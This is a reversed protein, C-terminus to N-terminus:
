DQMEPNFRSCVAAYSYLRVPQVRIFCEVWDTGTSLRSEYQALVEKPAGELMEAQGEVKVMAHEPGESEVVVLSAHPNAELNKRRLTAPLTPLWFNGSDDLMFYCVTVHPLGNARVTALAGITHADLLILIQRGTLRREPPMALITTRTSRAFTQAQLNEFYTELDVNSM